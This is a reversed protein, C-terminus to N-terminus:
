KPLAALREDCNPRFNNPPHSHRRSQKQRRATCEHEGVEGSREFRNFQECQTKTELLSIMKSSNLTENSKIMGNGAAHLGM